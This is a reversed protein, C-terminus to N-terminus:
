LLVFLEWAVFVLLQACSCHRRMCPESASRFAHPLLEHSEVMDLRSLVRAQPPALLVLDYGHIGSGPLMTSRLRTM